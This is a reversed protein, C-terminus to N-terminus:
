PKQGWAKTTPHRNPVFRKSRVPNRNCERVFEGLKTRALTPDVGVEGCCDEFQVVGGGDVWQCAVERQRAVERTYSAAGEGAPFAGKLKLTSRGDEAFETMLRAAHTLMAGCLLRYSGELEEVTLDTM